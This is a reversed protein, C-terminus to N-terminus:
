PSYEIEIGQSSFLKFLFTNQGVYNMHIIKNEKLTYYQAMEFVRKYLILDENQSRHIGIDHKKQCHDILQIKDFNLEHGWCIVFAYDLRLYRQM